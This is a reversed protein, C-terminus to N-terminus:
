RGGPLPSPELRILRAVPAPLWWNYRGLVAMIAPVLIMRVLTADIVVGLVLGVGLQQLGAVRGSVFGSFAAVMILAAATVIGGMRQLGHAISRATDPVEDWAERIRGVLFVEYDMSLGFLTAFLFIPVWAEVSGTHRLGLLDAAFGWCFVITLLGYVAAVSLVNLLVAKLPLLLSRFARLLVVYTLVLVALVIWPFARYISELLDLGQAPAGGVDVRAGAPFRAAPLERSRLRRVFDRMAPDGYEHRGVVVVRAYRASADVYPPKRDRVIVYAEADKPLGRVFRGIASQAPRALAAGPAGADVVIEVPTIAGPGVRDRILAFGRMAEPTGPVSSSSGPSLELWFAATAAALLPLSGAVLYLVPRRMVSSALRAWFGPHAGDPRLLGRFAVPRLHEGVVALLAPQVTVAAAISLLPVLLGGAGLSRILPVPVFVLTALGIAVSIGSFVVVRGATAMTRVIAEDRGLGRELEERFRYVILLSYDIALGLGILEVLNVVYSVMGVGHALAYVLALTGSITTAAVLFPVAVALSLGLVAILAVLTVPLAISEGLRLDSSLVPELDHEIAPPGTVLAPRDGSRRLARRLPTTFHKAHQLDLGTSLTAYLVGAGQRLQGPRSGPVARAADSLRGRLRAQLARDSPHPVRFVVTFAGDPREGFSRALVTAARESGSGPVAFSTSLLGPLQTSAWVGLVLVGLWVVLVALRFRIVFRTWREPM